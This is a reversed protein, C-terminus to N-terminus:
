RQCKMAGLEVTGDSPVSAPDSRTLTDCKARDVSIKYDGMPLYIIESTLNPLFDLHDGVRKLHEDNFDSDLPKKQLHITCGKGDSVITLPYILAWQPQNDDRWAALLQRWTWDIVRFNGSAPDYPQIRFTHNWLRLRIKENGHFSGYHVGDVYLQADTPNITPQLPIFRVHLMLLPVFGCAMAVKFTRKRSFELLRERFWTAGLVFTGGGIWPLVKGTIELIPNKWWQQPVLDVVLVVNAILLLLWMGDQWTPKQRLASDRTPTSRNLEDRVLARIAESVADATSVQGSTKQDESATM